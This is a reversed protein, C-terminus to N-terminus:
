PNDSIFKEFYDKTFTSDISHYFNIIIDAKSKIKPNENYLKWFTKNGMFLSESFSAVDECLGTMAYQHLFGDKAYEETVDTSSKGSNIAELANNGYSFGEKNFSTFADEDLYKKYKLRLVHSMEHHFLLESADPWFYVLYITDNSSTAGYNTNYCDLDELLYVKKITEGLLSQPYKKYSRKVTSLASLRKIISMPKAVANIPDQTWESPFIGKSYSFSVGPKLSLNEVVDKGTFMTLVVLFLILLIVLIRKFIPKKKDSKEIHINSINYDM